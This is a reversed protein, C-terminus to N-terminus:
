KALNVTTEYYNAPNSPSLSKTYLIFQNDTLTKIDYSEGDVTIKTDSAVNYAVTDRSNQFLSYAKGDARFDTYDGALGTYTTLHNQSSYYSNDVYSSLNWKGLVKEATTKAVVVDKKKCASFLAIAAFAVFLLKKM